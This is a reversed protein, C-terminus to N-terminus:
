RNPIASEAKKMAATFRRPDFSSPSEFQQFLETFTGKIATADQGRTRALATALVETAKGADAPATQAVADIARSPASARLSTTLAGAFLWAASAVM